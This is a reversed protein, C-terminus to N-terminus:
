THKMVEPHARMINVAEADELVLPRLLLRETRATIGPDVVVMKLLCFLSNSFHLWTATDTNRRLTMKWCGELGPEIIGSVRILWTRGCRWGCSLVVQVEYM